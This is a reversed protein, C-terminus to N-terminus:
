SLTVFNHRGKKTPIEGTNGTVPNQFALHQWSWKWTHVDSCRRLALFVDYRSGDLLHPTGNRLHVWANPDEEHVAVSFSKNWPKLGMRLGENMAGVPDNCFEDPVAREPLEISLQVSGMAEELACLMEASHSLASQAISPLLKPDPLLNRKMLLQLIDRGWCGNRCTLWFVNRNGICVAADAGHDLLLEVLRASGTFCANLLATSGSAQNNVDAKNDLLLRAIELVEEDDDMRRCVLDVAGAMRGEFPLDSCCADPFSSLLLRVVETSSFSCALAFCARASLVTTSGSALTNRIFPAADDWNPSSCARAFADALTQKM